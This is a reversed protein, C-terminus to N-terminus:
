ANRQKSKYNKDNIQVNNPKQSEEKWTTKPEFSQTTYM